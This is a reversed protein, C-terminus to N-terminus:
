SLSLKDLTKQEMKTKPSLNIEGNVVKIACTGCHGQRCGFKMEISSDLLPIRALETGEKLQISKNQKLFTLKPM